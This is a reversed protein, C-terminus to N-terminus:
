LPLLLQRSSDKTPSRRQSFWGVHANQLLKAESIGTASLRYEVTNTKRANIERLRVEFYPHYEQNFYRSVNNKSKRKGFRINLKSAIETTTLWNATENFDLLTMLIFPELAAQFKTHNTTFAQMAFASHYKNRLDRFLNKLTKNNDFKQADIADAIKGLGMREEQANRAAFKEPTVNDRNRKMARELRIDYSADLFILEVKMESKVAARFIEVEELARFGTVVVSNFQRELIHNAIPLAAIGPQTALAAEAFDGIRVTSRLGHREWFAKYMFDSAEIHPIGYTDTLWGATTTKGACTTGCVVFIAPFIPVRPLELQVLSSLKRDQIFQMRRLVQVIQAFAKARFDSKDADHINLASVPSTAGDPVFWRNFTKDDLWPYVLNPQIIQEIDAVKGKVEGHVWLFEDSTGLLDRWKRPLYMVIDSRVTASRDNSEAKLMADLKDFTMERMWFKVNVGPTEKIKSLADIQVSTDEFFFTSTEDDIKRQRLLWQKLASDYSQRLLESRDDIQPEHYSAYYNAEKFSKIRLGVKNGLYRFHAVKTLNTSFFVIDLM